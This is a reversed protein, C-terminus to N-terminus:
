FFFYHKERLLLKFDLLLKLKTLSLCVRFKGINRGILRTPHTPISDPSILSANHTIDQGMFVEQILGDETNITIM